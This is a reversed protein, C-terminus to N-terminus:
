IEKRDKMAMSLTVSDVFDIETGKPLGTAIRTIRIDYPKLLRQIYLATIDGNFNPNTAIIIEKVEGESVRKVLEKMKLNEPSIHNMPDIRGHLVHFVGDYYKGKEIAFLDRVEEVVCIVSHNRNSDACVSCREKDTINFCVPCLHMNEKAKQIISVFKEVESKNKSLIYLSIREASKPGIGPLSSIEKILDEIRNPFDSM